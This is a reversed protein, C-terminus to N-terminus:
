DEITVEEFIVGDCLDRAKKLTEESVATYGILELGKKHLDDAYSEKLKNIDYMIFQPNSEFNLIPTKLITKKLFNSNKNIEDEDVIQGRTIDPANNKFWLVTMPDKSAIMVVGHYDELCHAVRKELIGVENDNNIIEILIPVKGNIAELLKKLTPIKYETGKLMLRCAEEVPCHLPSLDLSCLRTFNEDGFVIAENDLTLQVEFHVAFGNKIANEFAGISNEPINENRSHLGRKAIFRYNEKIM